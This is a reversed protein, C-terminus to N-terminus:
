EDCTCTPTVDLAVDADLGCVVPAVDSCTLLPAGHIRLSRARALEPFLLREVNPVDVFAVDGRVDVLGVFILADPEAAGRITLNGEILKLEDFRLAGAALGRSLIVDGTVARVGFLDNARTVDGWAVTVDASTPLGSSSVCRVAYTVVGEEVGFPNTIGHDLAVPIPPSTGNDLTCADAGLASWSFAVSSASVDVVDFRAVVPGVDVIPTTAADSASGVSCTVTYTRAVEVNPIFLIRLDEDVPGINVAEPLPPEATLLCSAAAPAGVPLLLDGGYSVFPPAAVRVDLEDVTLTRSIPGGLGECTLTYTTTASPIHTARAGLEDVVVPNKGADTTVDCAELHAGSWSLTLPTGPTLVSPTATFSDISSLDVLHEDVGINAGRECVLAVSATVDVDVEVADEGLDAGTSVGLVRLDCEQAIFAGLSSTVTVRLPANGFSPEVDATVPEFVRIPAGPEQPPEFPPPACACLTAGVTACLVIVAHKARPRPM